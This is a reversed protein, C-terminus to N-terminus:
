VNGKDNDDIEKVYDMGAVNVFCERCFYIQSENIRHYNETVSNLKALGMYYCFYSLVREKCIKCTVEYSM